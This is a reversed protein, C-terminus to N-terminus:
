KQNVLYYVQHRYYALLQEIGTWYTYNIVVAMTYYIMNSGPFIIMFLKRWLIGCTLSALINQLIVNDQNLHRTILGYYFESFGFYTALFMTGGGMIRFLFPLSIKYYTFRSIGVSLTFTLPISSLLGLAMRLKSSRRPFFLKELTNGHHIEIDQVIKM